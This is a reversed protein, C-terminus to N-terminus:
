LDVLNTLHNFIIFCFLIYILDSNVHERFCTRFSSVGNIGEQCLKDLQKVTPQRRSTLYRLDLMSDIYVFSSHVVM